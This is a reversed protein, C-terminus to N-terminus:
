GDLQTIDPISQPQTWDMKEDRIKGRFSFESILIVFMNTITSKSQTIINQM